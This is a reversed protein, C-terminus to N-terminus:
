REIRTDCNSKHIYGHKHNTTLLHGSCCCGRPAPPLKVAVEVKWRAPPHEEEEEEQENIRKRSAPADLPLSTNERENISYDTASGARWDGHNRLWLLKSNWKACIWAKERENISHDRRGAHWSDGHNCLWIFHPPQCTTSKSNQGVQLLPPLVHVDCPETKTACAFSLEDNFNVHTRYLKSYWVEAQSAEEEEEEETSSERM